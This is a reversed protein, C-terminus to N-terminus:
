VLLAAEYISPHAQNKACRHFTHCCLLPFWFTNSANALTCDTAIGLMVCRLNHLAGRVGWRQAFVRQRLQSGGLGLLLGLYRENGPQFESLLSPRRRQPQM